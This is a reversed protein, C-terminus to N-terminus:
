YTALNDIQSYQKHTTDWTWQYLVLFLSFEIYMTIDDCGNFCGLVREAMLVFLCWCVLYNSERDSREIPSRWIRLFLRLILRQLDLRGPSLVYVCLVGIHTHALILCDYKRFSCVFITSCAELSYMWNFLSNAFVDTAAACHCFSDASPFRAYHFSFPFFLNIPCRFDSIKWESFFFFYCKLFVNPLHM